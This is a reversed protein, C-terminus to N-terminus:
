EEQVEGEKYQISVFTAAITGSGGWEKFQIVFLKLTCVVEVAFLVIGFYLKLMWDNSM